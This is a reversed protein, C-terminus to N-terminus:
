CYVSTIRCVLLQFDDGQYYQFAIVRAKELMDEDWQNSKQNQSAFVENLISTFLKQQQGIWSEDDYLNAKLIHDSIPHQKLAKTKPLVPKANKPQLARRPRSQKTLKVPGKALNQNALSLRKLVSKSSKVRVPPLINEKDVAAVRKVRKPGRLLQSSSSQLCLEDSPGDRRRKSM